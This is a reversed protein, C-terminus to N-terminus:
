ALFVALAALQVAVAICCAFRSSRVHIWYNLRQLPLRTLRQITAQLHQVHAYLDDMEDPNAAAADPFLFGFFRRLGTKPQARQGNKKISDCVRVFLGDARDLEDTESKRLAFVAPTRRAILFQRVCCVVLMPLVPWLALVAANLLTMPIDNGLLWAM